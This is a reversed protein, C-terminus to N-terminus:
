SGGKFWYFLAAVLLFPFLRWFVEEPQKQILHQFRSFLGAM